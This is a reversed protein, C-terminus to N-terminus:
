EFYEILVCDCQKLMNQCINVEEEMKLNKFDSRLNSTIEKVKVVDFQAHNRGLQCRDFIVSYQFDGM